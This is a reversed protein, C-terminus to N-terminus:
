SGDPLSPSPRRRLPATSVALRSPLVAEVRFGGGEAGAAFTGGLAAVRERMGVLGNGGSPLPQDGTQSRREGPCANVVTLRVGNPVFAVTVTTDAGRAHKHANTLAEQVV